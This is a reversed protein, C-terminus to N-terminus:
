GLQKFSVKKRYRTVIRSLLSNKLLKKARLLADKNVFDEPIQINPYTTRFFEINNMRSQELALRTFINNYRGKRILKQRYEYVNNIMAEIANNTSQMPSIRYYSLIQDVFLMNTRTCYRYWFDFDAIPFLDSEFGGIELALDKDLVVGPFPTLQAFYFFPEKVLKVEDILTTKENVESWEEEAVHNVVAMGGFIDKYRDYVKKVM